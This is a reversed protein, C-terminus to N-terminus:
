KELVKNQKQFEQFIFNEVLGGKDTRLFLNGFNEILSNRIGTDYFYIKPNKRIESSFNKFFLYVRKIVFTEELINLHKKVLKFYLSSDSSLQNYNTIQGVQSSFLQLLKRYSDLDEILLLERIERELYTNIISNLVAKKLEKNKKKIIEPYDGFTLYEEFFKYFNEEYISNELLPIKKKGLIFNWLFNRSKNYSNFIIPDKFKLFESFSLPFLHFYLSRGVLYKGTKFTIELSSSGTIFFKIQPYFDYLFKLKQGGQKIWHYEDLFWWLRGKKDKIRSEVFEKPNQNFQRRTELDEFSFSFISNSKVKKKQLLYEQIMSFLTTKGSQRPGLIIFIEKEKLWSIIKQFL